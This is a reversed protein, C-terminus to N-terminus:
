VYGYIGRVSVEGACITGIEGDPRRILLEGAEDIGLAEGLVERDAEIVRVQRGINILRENYEEKLFSLDKKKMFDQYLRELQELIGDVLRNRDIAALCEMELSTAIQRIEEPFEQQGVNVGIGVIVHDIGERDLSMETLIGCVKKEQLLLDNPWKIMARQECVEEIARSVALAAVLTLMSAQGAEIPPRLLVSMYISAGPPSHWSRGRRGRGATQERALVVTGHDGGVLALRKAEENTSDIKELLVRRSGIIGPKREKQEVREETAM